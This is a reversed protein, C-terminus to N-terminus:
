LSHQSLFPKTNIQAQPFFKKINETTKKTSKSNPKQTVLTYSHVHQSGFNKCLESYLTYFIYSETIFKGHPTQIHKIYIKKSDYTIYLSYSKTKLSLDKKPSIFIKFSLILTAITVYLLINKKSKSLNKIFQLHLFIFLVGWSFTIVIWPHHQICVKTYSTLSTYTLIKIWYFSLKELLFGLPYIYIGFILGCFLLLAICLFFLLVPSFLINGIISLPTIPLGEHVLIPLTFLTIIGQLYLVNLLFTSIKEYLNM